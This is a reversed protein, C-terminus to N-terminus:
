ESRSKEEEEAKINRVYAEFAQRGEERWYRNYYNWEDDVPAEAAHAWKERYHDRWAGHEDKGHGGFGSFLIKALLVLGFAQWYSLEALGFLGPMLWNWLLKVGLGFILAFIVAAVLGGLIMGGLRLGRLGHRSAFPKRTRKADHLM